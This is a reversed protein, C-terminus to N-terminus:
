KETYSYFYPCIDVTHLTVWAHAKWDQAVDLPDIEPPSCGGQQAANSSVNIVKV